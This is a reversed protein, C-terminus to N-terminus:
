TIAPPKGMHVPRLQTGEQLNIYTNSFLTQIPVPGAQERFEDKNGVVCTLKGSLEESAKGVLTHWSSFQM